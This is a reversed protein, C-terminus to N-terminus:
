LLCSASFVGQLNVQDSTILNIKEFHDANIQLQDYYNDRIHSDTYLVQYRFLYVCGVLILWGCFMVIIVSPLINKIILAIVSPARSPEIRLWLFLLILLVTIIWSAIQVLKPCSKIALIAYSLNFCIFGLVGIFLDIIRIDEAHLMSVGTLV